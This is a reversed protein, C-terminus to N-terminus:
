RKIPSIIYRAQYATAGVPRLMLPTTPSDAVLEFRETEMSQLVDRLYNANLAIECAPGSYYCEIESSAESSWSRIRLADRTPTLAIAIDSGDAITVARIEDLARERNATISLNTTKPFIGAYAPFPQVSHLPRAVVRGNCSLIIQKGTELIATGGVSAVSKFDLLTLPDISLQAPATGYIVESLRHGDTTVVILNEGDLGIVAQAGPRKASAATMSIAAALSLANGSYKTDTSQTYELWAPRTPLNATLDAWKLELRKDKLELAVDGKQLNQVLEPFVQTSLCVSGADEVVASITASKLSSYNHTLLVLSDDKAVLGIWGVHQQRYLSSLFALESALKAKQVTVRM